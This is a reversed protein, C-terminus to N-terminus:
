KNLFDDVILSAEEYAEELKDNIITIDFKEEFSLEDVAKEIRTKLSEETETERAALRDKLVAISPVRIFVALAKDGFYDKLKVGGKVDVDFVVTCGLSWIREVESKLTGYYNDTYVEEWEVFKNDRISKQFDELSLFHYDKGDIEGPRKSRTCASISFNLKKYTKLLHKVITTKGSGSPASFILAKGESM